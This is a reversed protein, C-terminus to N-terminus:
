RSIVLETDQFGNLRLKDLLITHCVTDFAKKLDLFVAGTFLGKEMNDLITDTVHILTTTTSHAPRFGSQFKNLINHSGLVNYQYTVCTRVKDQCAILLKLTENEKQHLLFWLYTM